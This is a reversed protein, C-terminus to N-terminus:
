MARPCPRMPKMASRPALQGFRELFWRRDGKPLALRQTPPVTEPLYLSQLFALQAELPYANKEDPRPGPILQGRAGGRARPAASAGPALAPGPARGLDM